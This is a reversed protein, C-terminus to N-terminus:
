PGAFFFAMLAIAVFVRAKHYPGSPKKPYIWVWKGEKDVTSLKDRYSETQKTETMARLLNIFTTRTQSLIYRFSNKDVISFFM